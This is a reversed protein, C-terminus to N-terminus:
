ATIRPAGSLGQRTVADLRVCTKQQNKNRRQVATCSLGREGGCNSTTTRGTAEHRGSTRVPLPTDTPLHAEAVRAELPYPEHHDAVAKSRSFFAGRHRGSPKGHLRYGEETEAENKQGRLRPM